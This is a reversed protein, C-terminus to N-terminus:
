HHVPHRRALALAAGAGACEAGAHGAAGGPWARLQLCAPLCAPWLAPPAGPYLVCCVSTGSSTVPRPQGCVQHCAHQPRHSPARPRRSGCCLSPARGVAIRHGPPIRQQEPAQWKTGAQTGSLTQDHHQRTCATQQQCWTHRHTAAARSTAARAVGRTRACREQEATRLYHVDATAPHLGEFSFQSAQVYRGDKM